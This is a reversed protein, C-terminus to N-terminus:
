EETRQRSPPEDDSYQANFRKKGEHMSELSSADDQESEEDDDDRSVTAATTSSSLKLGEIGGPIPNALAVRAVM